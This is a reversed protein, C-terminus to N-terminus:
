FHWRLGVFGGELTDSVYEDKQPSTKFHLAKFGGLAEVSGRRYSLTAEADWIGARHPLGFGSGGARFMLHPALDYEIALGLTPFIINRSAVASTTITNGSSDTTAKLPADLTSKIAIYQVEWLSKLRFRAVPFRFPYLLDDLYLKAATIQYQTSLFDGKNFTAGFPNTDEPAKQTGDGKSLFGELHLVGTRTIPMSVEVGPTRHDAGLGTLTGFATGAKGEKLDAGSGPVTIWYNLGITFTRPDPYDPGTKAPAAPNVPPPAPAPSPATAAPPTQPAAPPDQASASLVTLCLVPVIKLFRLSLISGM